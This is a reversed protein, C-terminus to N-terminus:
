NRKMIGYLFLKEIEDIVQSLSLDHEKLFQFNFASDVVKAIALDIIALNVDPRIDGTAIGQKILKNIQQRKFDGIARTKKWEEPFYRMLEELLWDPTERIENIIVRKFKEEWSGETQMAESTKNIEMAVHMEILESIIQRKSEFHKYVTKKSIGLDTAIDDITFKRFGFKLGSINM